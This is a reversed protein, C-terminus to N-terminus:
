ALNAELVIVEDSSAPRLRPRRVLEGRCNPCVGGFAKEACLACFTCEFACIRADPSEPALGTNCHECNSRLELM